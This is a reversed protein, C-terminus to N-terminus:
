AQASSRARARWDALGLGAFGLVLMAWTSPEPVPVMWVFSGGGGGGPDNFSSGGAQGVLIELETAQAFDVLGSVEAGSGGGFYTDVAGGFGGQAGTVVITHIGASLDFEVIAGVTGEPIGDITVM